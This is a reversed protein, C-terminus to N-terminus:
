GIRNITNTDNLKACETFTYDKKEGTIDYAAIAAHCMASMDAM